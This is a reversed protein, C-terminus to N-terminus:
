KANSEVLDRFRAYAREWMEPQEPAYTRVPFSRAIIDRAEALSGIYGLAIYQVAINGIASAEAPGAWVPRGTADAAFRCLLENHIGGGVIHLGAFKTGSLRETHELVMRYKLALSELVCRITQGSTEPEPQGTSRCFDRIQRPMDPPNLFVPHDPDILSRLPEAEGALAALRAFTYDAGEKEWRRKCEQVLWLGMINKLLRFTGYVGGENTFNLRMAEDSLVPRATETGLLSWTGSSLYAFPADGSVPVAAVASATDHEGVAIVPVPPFGLEECVSPMLRGAVTGSPVIEPLIGAPLGLEGLLAIDWKKSEAGLMQTTTANTYECCKEGTLFYRLLDPIMLMTEAQELLRPNRKRLAALQYLTNFPLFQLGTSAFIRRRGAKATVEEMIGETQHDRYHYPNGILEGSKDILGFDVAWSDVAVSELAFGGRKAKLMGQKIEHYLRLIDWHLRGGVRVPDNPFRHIEEVSLKRAAADYRGIMARGSSAGLDFALVAPMTPM